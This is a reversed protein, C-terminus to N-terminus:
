TTNKGHGQFGATFLQVVSKNQVSAGYYLIQGLLFGNLALGTSFGVLLLADGGALQQTTFLRIVLGICGLAATLPSYGGPDKRKANLRIQPVLAVNTLVFSIAQALALMQSPAANLAWM